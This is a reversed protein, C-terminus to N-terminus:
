LLYYKKKLQLWKKVEWCKNTDEEDYSSRYISNAPNMSDIKNASV